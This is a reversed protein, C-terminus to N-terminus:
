INKLILCYSAARENGELYGYAGARGKIKQSHLEWLSCHRLWALVASPSWGSSTLPQTLCIQTYLPYIWLPCCLGAEWLSLASLQEGMAKVLLAFVHFWSERHEDVAHYPVQVHSQKLCTRLGQTHLLSMHSKVVPLCLSSVPELLYEWWHWM